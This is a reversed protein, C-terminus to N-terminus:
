ALVPTPGDEEQSAPRHLYVSALRLSLGIIFFYPAAMFPSELLVGFLAATLMLIVYTTLFVALDVQWGDAARKARSLWRWQLFFFAVHWALWLALGILGMRGFVSVAISHPNRNPRERSRTFKLAATQPTLDPGFGVGFLMSPLSASNQELVWTWYEKRWDVAVVSKRSASYEYDSALWFPVLTEFEEVVRPVSLVLRGAKAQVDLAAAGLGLCGLAIIGFLIQRARFRVALYAAAAAFAVYGARAQLAIMLVLQPFAVAWRTLTTWGLYKGMFVAFLFGAALHVASADPRLYLLPFKSGPALPSLRAVEASNSIWLACFLAHAGFAVALVRLLPRIHQPRMALAYGVYAFAAYYWIAADRLAFAGYQGVHSFTLAAGLAMWAALGWTLPHRLMEPLAQRHPLTALCIVLGIEGVYIPLAGLPLQSYAFGRSLVIFGLLLGAATRGWIPLGATVAWLAAGAMLFAVFTWAYLPRSVLAGGFIVAGVVGLVSLVSVTNIWSRSPAGRLAYIQM